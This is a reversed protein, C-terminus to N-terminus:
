PAHGLPIRMGDEERCVILALPNIVRDLKVAFGCCGKGFGKKLLDQRYTNAPFRAIIEGNIIAILRVPVEPKSPTYAWGIIRNDDVFDVGGMLEFINNDSNCYSFGRSNISFRIAELEYGDRVQRACPQIQDRHKPYLSNYEHFNKFWWRPVEDLFSETWSGNSLLLDHHDLELHIYLIDKHCLAQYISTDNILRWTPVLVGKLYVSHGPSVMLPSNPSGDDLADTDIIVPSILPNKKINDQSQPSFGIWKIKSTGSFYTTVVDGISLEEILRDGCPTKIKTGPCFCPVNFGIAELLQEDSSSITGYVGTPPLVNFVDGSLAQWDNYNSVTAFNAITTQGGDLSFYANPSTQLIPNSTTEIIGSSSYRFIDLLSFDIGNSYGFKGLAICLENLAVDVFTVQGAVSQGSTSFNLIQNGAGFELSADLTQYSGIGLAEAQAVSLIIDNTGVTQKVSTLSAATAAEAAVAPNMNSSSIAALTMHSEITSLSVPIFNELTASGLITSSNSADWSVSITVTEQNGILNDLYQAAYQVDSIFGTPALSASSTFDLAIKM